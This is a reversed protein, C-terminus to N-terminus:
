NNENFIKLLSISMICYGDLCFEGTYIYDVRCDCYNGTYFGDVYEQLVLIDGPKYDRDFRRIEFKKFGSSVAEYFKPLIKLLHINPNKHYCYSM